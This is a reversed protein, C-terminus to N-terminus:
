TTRSTSSRTSTPTPGRGGGMAYEPEDQVLTFGRVKVESRQDEVLTAEASQTVLREGQRTLDDVMKEFFPKLAPSLKSM